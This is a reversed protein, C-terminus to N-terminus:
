YTKSTLNATKQKRIEYMSSIINIWQRREEGGKKGILVSIGLHTKGLNMFEPKCKKLGM